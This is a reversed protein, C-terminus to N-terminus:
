LPTNKLLIESLNIVQDVNAQKNKKEKYSSGENSCFLCWLNCQPTLSFRLRLKKFLTIMQKNTLSKKGKKVLSSRCLNEYKGSMAKRINALAEDQHSYSINKNM